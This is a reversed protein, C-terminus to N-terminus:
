AAPQAVESESESEAEQFSDTEKVGAKECSITILRTAEQTFLRVSLEQMDRTLGAKPGCMVPKSFYNGQGGIRWICNIYLVPQGQIEGPEFSLGTEYPIQTAIHTLLKWVDYFAPQGPPKAHFPISIGNGGNTGNSSM